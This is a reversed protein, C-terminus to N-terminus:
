CAEDKLIDIVDHLSDVIKWCKEAYEPEPYKMDPVCIVRIHGNWGALIGAESDELVVAEEPLVELKECAKRFTEPHPKGNAVEDGCIASDFYETIGALELIHDVRARQSSTAVITRYGNERLYLLLEKLGPKLPVGVTEFQNAMYAHVNSIITQMDLNRGFKQYHLELIEPIRKGLLKKYFEKPYEFGLKAFEIVYGDYTVRESDIMLGDMDFIVAKM